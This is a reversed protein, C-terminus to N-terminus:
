LVPVSAAVCSARVALLVASSAATVFRAAASAAVLVDFLDPLDVLVFVFPVLGSVPADLSTNGDKITAIAARPPMITVMLFVINFLYNLSTVTNIILKFLVAAIKSAVENSATEIAAHLLGTLVDEDLEFVEEAEDSVENTEDSAEDTVDSVEDTSELVLETADPVEETVGPVDVAFGPVDVAFGPVDVAFGVDEALGVVKWVVDTAGDFLV